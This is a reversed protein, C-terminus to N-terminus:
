EEGRITLFLEVGEAENPADTSLRTDLVHFWSSRSLVDFGGYSYGYGLRHRGLSSGDLCLFNNGRFNLQM